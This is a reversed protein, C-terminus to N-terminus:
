IIGNRFSKLTETLLHRDGYSKKVYNSDQHVTHVYRMNPVTFISIGKKLLLYNIYMSDAADPIVEDQDARLFTHKNVFYNM